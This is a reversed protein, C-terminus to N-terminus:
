MDCWIVDYWWMGDNVVDYGWRGDDKLAYWCRGDDIMNIPQSVAIGM